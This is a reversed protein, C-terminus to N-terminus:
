QVNRAQNRRTFLNNKAWVASHLSWPHALVQSFWRSKPLIRTKCRFFHSTKLSKFAVRTTLLLLLGFILNFGRNETMLASKPPYICSTMKRGLQNKCGTPTFALFSCSLPTKSGCIWMTRRKLKGRAPVAGFRWIFLHLCRGFLIWIRCKMHFSCRLSESKEGNRPIMQIFPFHLLKFIIQEEEGAGTYVAVSKLIFPDIGVCMCIYIYKHSHRHNHIYVRTNAYM